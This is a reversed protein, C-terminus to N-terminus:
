RSWKVYRDNKKYSQNRLDNKRRRYEGNDDLPKETLLWKPVKVIEGTVPDYYDVLEDEDSGGGSSGKGSYADEVTKKTPEPGNKSLFGKYRRTTEENWVGWRMGKVGAHIILDRYTEM